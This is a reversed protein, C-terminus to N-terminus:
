LLSNNHTTPIQLCADTNYKQDVIANKAAIIFIYLLKGYFRHYYLVLKQYKEYIQMAYLVM